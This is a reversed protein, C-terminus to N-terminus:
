VEIRQQKISQNSPQSISANWKATTWMRKQWTTGANVANWARLDWDTATTLLLKSSLVQVEPFGESVLCWVVCLRVCGDWLELVFLNQQNDFLRRKVPYLTSGTSTSLERVQFTSSPVTSSWDSDFTFCHLITVTLKLNRSGLINRNSECWLMRLQDRQSPRWEQHRQWLQPWPPSRDVPAISSWNTGKAAISWTDAHWFKLRKPQDFVHKLDLHKCICSSQNNLVTNFDQHVHRDWLQMTLQPWGHSPVFWWVNQNM